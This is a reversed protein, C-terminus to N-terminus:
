CRWTWRCAKCKAVRESCGFAIIILIIGVPIGLLTICLLIGGIFLTWGMATTRKGQKIKPSGCRPCGLGTPRLLAPVAVPIPETKVPSVSEVLVGLENGRTQAASPTPADLTLAVDQGTDRSCGVVRFQM